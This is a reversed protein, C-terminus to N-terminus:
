LHEFVTCCSLDASLIESIATSHCICVHLWRISFMVVTSISFRVSVHGAEFECAKSKPTGKDTRPSKPVSSRPDEPPNVELGGARAPADSHNHRKLHWQSGAAWTSGHIISRGYLRLGRPGACGWSLTLRM